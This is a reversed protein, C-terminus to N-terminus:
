MSRGCHRTERCLGYSRPQFLPPRSAAAAVLASLDLLVFLLSCLCTCRSPCRRVKHAAVAVQGGGKKFRLAFLHGDGRGQVAARLTAADAGLPSPSHVHFWVYSIRAESSSFSRAHTLHERSQHKSDLGSQLSTSKKSIAQILPPPPCPVSAGDCLVVICLQPLFTLFWKHCTAGRSYRPYYVAALSGARTVCGESPTLRGPSDHPRQHLIQANKRLIHAHTVARAHSAM